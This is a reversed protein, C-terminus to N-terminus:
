AYIYVHAYLRIYKYMYIYIYIYSCGYTYNYVVMYIGTPIMAEVFTNMLSRLSAEVKIRDKDSNKGDLTSTALTKMVSKFHNDIEVTSCLFTLQSLACYYQITPQPDWSTLVVSSISKGILAPQAKLLVM